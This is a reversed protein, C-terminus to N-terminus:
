QVDFCIAVCDADDATLVWKRSNLPSEALNCFQGNSDNYYTYALACFDHTGTVVPSVGGFISSHMTSKSLNIKSTKWLGSQCNFELVLSTLVPLQFPLALKTATIPLIPLEGVMTGTAIYRKLVEWRRALFIHGPATRM